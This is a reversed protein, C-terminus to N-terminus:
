VTTRTTVASEASASRSVAADTVIMPMMDPPVNRSRIEVCPMRIASIRAPTTTKAMESAVIPIETIMAPM